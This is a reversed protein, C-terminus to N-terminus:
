KPRKGRHVSRLARSVNSRKNKLITNVAVVIQGEWVIRGVEGKELKVKSMFRSSVSKGDTNWEHWNAPLIKNREWSETKVYNILAGIKSMANADIETMKKITMRGANKGTFSTNHTIQKKLTIYNKRYRTITNDKEKLKLELERIRAEAAASSYTSHTSVSSGSGGGMPSEANFDSMTKTCIPHHMYSILQLIKDKICSCTVINEFFHSKLFNRQRLNM